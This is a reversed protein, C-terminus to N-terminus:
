LEKREADAPKDSTEPQQGSRAHQAALVVLERASLGLGDIGPFLARATINMKRLRRLIDLKQVSPIIFKRFRLKGDDQLCNAILEGHDALINGSVSFGVQQVAMRDTETIRRMFYMIPPGDARIFTSVVESPTKPEKGLDGYLDRMRAKVSQPHVTWIAGPKDPEQVVAFYAAVFPSATWDLLRTPAGYHQMLTWWSALDTTATITTSSLHLHAQSRFLETIDEEIQLAALPALGSIYRSLSPRLQWTADAQGRFLYPAGAPNGIDLTAALETLDLWSEIRVESVIM